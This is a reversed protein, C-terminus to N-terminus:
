DPKTNPQKALLFPLPLDFSAAGLQRILINQARPRLMQVGQLDPREPKPSPPTSNLLFALHRLAICGTRPQITSNIQFDASVQKDCFANCDITGVMLDMWKISNSLQHYSPSPSSSFLILLFILICLLIIIIKISIILLLLLSLILVPTHTVLAPWSYIAFLEECMLSQVSQTVPSKM